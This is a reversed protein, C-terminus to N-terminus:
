FKAHFKPFCDYCFRLNGPCAACETTVKKAKKKAMKRGLLHSYRDYCRVCYRRKRRDPRKGSERESTERLYHQLQNSEGEDNVKLLSSALKERFTTIKMPKQGCEERRANYLSCANVVATGCLLEIAVKHYWRISKRLATHYSSMQDSIDIGQKSKNYYM